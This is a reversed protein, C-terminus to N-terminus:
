SRRTPESIHILSLDEPLPGPATELVTGSPAQAGIGTSQVTESSQPEASQELISNEDLIKVTDTKVPATDAKITDVITSSDVKMGEAPSEAIKKKPHPLEYTLGMTWKISVDDGFHMPIFSVDYLLNDLKLGIGMTFFDTPHFLPLGLRLALQPVIRMEMGLPIMLLKQDFNYVIDAAATYSMRGKLSDSFSVGARLTTPLTLKQLNETTDRHMTGRGALHIIAAGVQLKEPIISYIAGASGTVGLSKHEVIRDDIGNLAIGFAFNNRILGLAVSAMSGQEAGFGGEVPGQDTAYQFGIVQNQLSGGFFWNEFHYGIEVNGRRLDENLKGFDLSVSPRYLAPAVPNYFSFGRSGLATGASGMAMLRTNLPEELFGYYAEGADAFAGGCFLIGCAISACIKKVAM